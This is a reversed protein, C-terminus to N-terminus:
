KTEGALAAGETVRPVSLADQIGDREDTIAQIAEQCASLQQQAAREKGYAFTQMQVVRTYKKALERLRARKVDIKAQTM